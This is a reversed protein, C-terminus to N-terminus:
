NNTAKKKSKSNMKVLNGFLGKKSKKKPEEEMIELDDNKSKRKNKVTKIEEFLSEDEDEFEIGDDEYPIEEEFVEDKKSAGKELKETDADFEDIDRLKDEIDSYKGAFIDFEAKEEEKTKAAVVTDLIDEFDEDSVNRIVEEEEAIKRPKRGRRSSPKSPKDDDDDNDDDDDDDDDDSKSNKSKHAKKSKKEKKAEPEPEEEPEEIEEEAESEDEDEVEEAEAEAEIDENEEAEIEVTEEQQAEEEEAEAEEEEEDEDEDFDANLEELIKEVNKRRAKAKKEAREELEKEEKASEEEDEEDDSNEFMGVKKQKINQIKGNPKEEEAEDDDDEDDDISDFNLTRKAKPEEKEEEFPIEVVEDDAMEKPVDFEDLDRGFVETVDNYFVTYINKIGEIRWFDSNLITGVSLNVKNKEEKFKEEYNTMEILYSKNYLEKYGKKTSKTAIERIILEYLNDIQEVDKKLNEIAEEMLKAHTRKGNVATIREYDLLQFLYDKEAFLFDTKVTTNKARKRFKDLKVNDKSIEDLLRLSNEYMDVYCAAEREAIDIGLNAAANIIGPDFPVKEGKGNNEMLTVLKAKIEESGTFNRVFELNFENLNEVNEKLQELADNYNEEAQERNDICENLYDKKENYEIVLNVFQERLEKQLDSSQDLDNEIKELCKLIEEPKEEVNNFLLNRSYELKIAKNYTKDHTKQVNRIEEALQNFEEIVRQETTYADKFEDIRNVLNKFYEFNVKLNYESSYGLINDFYRDLVIASREYM